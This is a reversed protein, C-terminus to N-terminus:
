VSGIGGGATQAFASRPILPLRQGSKSFDLATKTRGNNERMGRRGWSLGLVISLLFCLVAEQKLDAKEELSVMQTSLARCVGLAERRKEGDGRRGYSDRGATAKSAQQKGSAGNM